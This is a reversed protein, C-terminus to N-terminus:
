HKPAANAKERLDVLTQMGKVLMDDAIELPANTWSLATGSNAGHNDMVVFVLLPMESGDLFKSLEQLGAAAREKVSAIFEPSFDEVKGHKVDANTPAESM